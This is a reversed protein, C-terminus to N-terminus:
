GGTVPPFLALEDGEQLFSSHRAMVSNIAVRVSGDPGLLAHHRADRAALMDLVAQVSVPPPTPLPLLERARGLQERFKAFYLITITGPVTM